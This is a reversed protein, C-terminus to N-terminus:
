VGGSGHLLAGWSVLVGESGHLLPDWSVLDGVAMYSAGVLQGSGGTCAPPGGWSVLGEVAM